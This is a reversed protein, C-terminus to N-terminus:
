PPSPQPVPRRPPAPKLRLREGLVQNQARLEAVQRELERLRLVLYRRDTKPPHNMSPILHLGCAPNM